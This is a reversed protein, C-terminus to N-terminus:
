LVFCKRRTTTNRVDRFVPDESTTILCCLKHILIKGITRNINTKVALHNFKLDSLTVSHLFFFLFFSESHINKKKLKFCLAYFLNFNSTCTCTPLNRYIYEFKFQFM